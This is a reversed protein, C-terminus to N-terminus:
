ARQGRAVEFVALLPRALVLPFCDLLPMTRLFALRARPRRERGLVSLLAACLVLIRVFDAAMPPPVLLRTQGMLPRDQKQQLDQSVLFHQPHGCCHVILRPPWLRLVRLIPECALWISGCIAPAVVRRHGVMMATMGLWVVSTALLPHPKCVHDKLRPPHARAPPQAGGYVPNGRGPSTTTGRRTTQGSGPGTGHEFGPM